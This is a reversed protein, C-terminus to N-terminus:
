AGQNVLRTVADGQTRCVKREDPRIREGPKPPKQQRSPAFAAEEALAADVDFEGAYGSRARNRRMRCTSLLHASAQGAASISSCTM